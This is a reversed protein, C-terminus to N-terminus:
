AEVCASEELLESQFLREIQDRGLSVRLNSRLHVIRSGVVQARASALGCLPRGFTYTVERGDALTATWEDKVLFPVRVM